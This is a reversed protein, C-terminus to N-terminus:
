VSVKRTELTRLYHRKRQSFVRNKANLLRLFSFLTRLRLSLSPIPIYYRFVFMTTCINSTELVFQSLGQWLVGIWNTLILKFSETPQYLTSTRRSSAQERVRQYHQVYWTLPMCPVCNAKVYCAPDTVKYVARTGFDVRWDRARSFDPIYDVPTAIHTTPSAHRFLINTALRQRICLLVSSYASLIQYKPSPIHVLLATIPNRGGHHRSASAHSNTRLINLRLRQRQFSHPLSSRYSICLGSVHGLEPYRHSDCM